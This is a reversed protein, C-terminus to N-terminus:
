QLFYVVSAMTTGKGDDFAGHRKSDCRLGDGRDEGSLVKRTPDAALFALDARVAAETYPNATRGYRDMGLIPEDCVADDKEDTENEADELIGSILYLLSAPYVYPIEYYNTEDADTMTFMRFQDFLPQTAHLALIDAFLAHTCAPALFVLRSLRFDAQYLPHTADTRTAQLYALFRCAYISGASHGVISIRPLPTGGAAKRRVLEEGILKLMLWGAREPKQGANEFTDAADQKMFGWVESGATDLYLERLIEEVITAHLGHDSHHYVRKIVRAAIALGHIVLTGSILGRGGAVDGAEDVVAQDVRPPASVTRDLTPAITVPDRPALLEANWAARLTPDRMLQAGLRRTDDATLGPTSAVVPISGFPVGGEERKNLEAELEADDPMEGAFGKGALGGLLKGALFQLLKALLKEFLPQNAIEEISKLADFVSTRWVVFVPFQGGALYKPQLDNVMKYAADVGVLGGHLHIVIPKGSAFARQFVDAVHTAQSNADLVGDKTTQIIYSLDQLM